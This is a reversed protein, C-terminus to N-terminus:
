QEIVFAPAHPNISPGKRPGMAAIQGAAVRFALLQSQQLLYPTM